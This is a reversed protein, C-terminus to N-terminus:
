APMGATIRPMWFCGPTSVTASVRSISRWSSVRRPEIGRSIVVTATCNRWASKMSFEIRFTCFTSNSASSITVTTRNTKRSFTRVVSIESSAIGIDIAIVAITNQSKSRDILVIVSPPRAIAIPSSTSSATTPTSFV